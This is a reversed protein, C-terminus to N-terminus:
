NGSEISRLSLARPRKVWGGRGDPVTEIFELGTNTIAMVKGHNKGVYNGESVRHLRGDPSSVLAELAGKMNVTGVMQLGSVDYAELPEKVRLDDPAAVQEGKVSTGDLEIEIPREFPSRLTMASYAFREAPPFTPLPDIQGAPRERAARMKEDLDSTSKGGACAALMSVATLLLIRNKM